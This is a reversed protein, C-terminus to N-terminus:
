YLVTGCQTVCFLSFRSVQRASGRFGGFRKLSQLPLRAPKLPPSRFSDSPSREPLPGRMGGPGQGWRCAGGGRREGRGEGREGQGGTLSAGARPDKSPRGPV